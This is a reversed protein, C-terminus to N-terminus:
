HCAEDHPEAYQKMDPSFDVCVFPERGLVWADHGPPIAAFDGPGLELEGGDDMLIKLRGSIVYQTHHVQCSETGAMPRISESWKWGPELTVRALTTGELDALELKGHGCSRTVDPTGLNKKILKLTEAIM